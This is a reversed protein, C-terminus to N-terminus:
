TFFYVPKKGNDYYAWAVNIVCLNNKSDAIKINQQFNIRWYNKKSFLNLSILLPSLSLEQIPKAM